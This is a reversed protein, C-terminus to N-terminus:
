RLHYVIALGGPAPFIELRGMGDTEERRHERDMVHFGTLVGIGAGVLVDTLWHQNNRMRAIGTLSAMGYFGIRAWLRDIREALVTSMAFAVTTHGSPFSQKENSWEFWNFQWPRNEGYPRSRGFLLSRLAIVTIGSYSISEFVLRGTTRIDDCGTVLGGAYLGLAFANAYQVVGYETPIDWFDGNISKHNDSGVFERASPDSPILLAAGGAVGATIPWDQGTFRLPSIFYSIGDDLFIRADEGM